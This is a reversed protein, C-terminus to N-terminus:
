ELLCAALNRSNESNRRLIKLMTKADNGGNSQEIGKCVEGERM